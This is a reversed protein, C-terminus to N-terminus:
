PEGIPLSETGPLKALKEVLRHEGVARWPHGDHEGTVMTVTGSAGDVLSDFDPHYFDGGTEEDISWDVATGSDDIPAELMVLPERCEATETSPRSTNELYVYTWSDGLTPEECKLKLEDVLQGLVSRSCTADSGCEEDSKLRHADRILGDDDESSGGKSSGSSKDASASGAEDAGSDASGSGSGGQCGALLTLSVLLPLLLPTRM